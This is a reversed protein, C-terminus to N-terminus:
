VAEAMEGPVEPQCAFQARLRCGNGPSSFIELKGNYALLRSQMNKLGIGTKVKAPDFGKGDDTIELVAQGGQNAIAVRVRSAGAYKTINNLQEQVIRYVMLKQDPDLRREEFDSDNWEFQFDNVRNINAVLDQIAQALTIRSFVPSQISASLQRIETISDSVLKSTEVLLHDRHEPFKIMDMLYMRAVSLLQCVNDHLEGAWRTREKEQAKIITRTMTRKFKLQQEYYEQQLNRLESVDQVAGILRIPKGSVHRIIYSSFIVNYYKNDAGLLRLETQLSTRNSILMMRYEHSVRGVDEPHIQSRYAMWFNPIPEEQSPFFFKMKENVLASDTHFDYDIVGERAAHNLAYFKRELRESRQFSKKLDQNFRQGLFFILASSLLVFCIGKVSQISDLLQHDDGSIKVAISDGVLIWIVSVGLYVLALKGSPPIGPFRPKM